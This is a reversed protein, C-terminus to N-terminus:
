AASRHGRRVRQSLETLDVIAKRASDPQLDASADAVQQASEALAPYGLDLAADRLRDAARALEVGAGEAELDQLEDICEGLSAIFTELREEVEPEDERLSRIPQPPKAAM